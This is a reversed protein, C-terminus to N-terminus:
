GLIFNLGALGCRDAWWGSYDIKLAQMAYQQARVFTGPPFFEMLMPPPSPAAADKDKHKQKQHAKPVRSAEALPSRMFVSDALQEGFPGMVIQSLLGCGTLWRVRVNGSLAFFLWLRVTSRAFAGMREVWEGGPVSGNGRVVHVEGLVGESRMKRLGAVLREHDEQALRPGAGRPEDQMSVYTVVPKGKAQSRAGLGWFGRKSEGSAPSDSEPLHLYRLLATRMPAWWGQPANLGVFPSAWVPAGASDEETARRVSDQGNVDGESGNGDNNTSGTTAPPPPPRWNTRGREAAGRDAVVVREFVFPVHMEGLDAWDEEFWTGVTPLVAKPLLPHVGFYSRERPPPHKKQDEEPKPPIHPTSFTPLHPFVLRLPAPIDQPASPASAPPIIRLGAPTFFPSPSPQASLLASHTRFLSLLLYPDQHRATDLALWSTGHLRGDRPILFGHRPLFYSFIPRM